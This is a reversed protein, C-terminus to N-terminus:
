RENDNSPEEIPEEVEDNSPISRTNQATDTTKTYELTVYASYASRDSGTKIYILTTSVNIEIGNTPTDQVVHPFKFWFSGNTGTGKIDLITGLNSINHSVSKTSANPLAGFNIVKRYVPKGDIWTGIRQESTSYTELGNIYDQSYGNSQSTGYVNSISAGGEIYQSTKKIRGKYGIVKYPILYNNASSYTDSGYQNYYCGNNFTLSTGSITFIERFILYGAYTCSTKNTLNTPTKGSSVYMDTGKEVKYVIEYFDYNEISDSLTITQTAFNSTMNTNTWLVNDVEEWGDPVSNGDFDVESGVPLTDLSKIYIDKYTGNDNYKM